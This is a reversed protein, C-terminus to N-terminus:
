RHRILNLITGVGRSVLWFLLTTGFAFSWFAFAQTYDFPAAAAQVSAFESPTLMVFASCITEKTSIVFGNADLLTCVAM